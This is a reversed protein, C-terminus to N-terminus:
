EEGIRLHNELWDGIDALVREHGPENLLEHYFGDYYKLTKDKSRAMAYLHSSGETNSLRDQSGHILLVPAEIDAVKSPLSREIVNVLETGLRARIRGRYVLPDDLYAEVVKRDRSIASADISAIGIKPLVASLARAMLISSRTVSSGPMATAASLICGAFGRGHESVYDAVVTGGVSHGLIFMPKAPHRASVLKRFIDLDDTYYSFRRVYGRLGESRGHGRQDFSHVAFGRPVVYDVLNGYRGSHEFLGHIVLM